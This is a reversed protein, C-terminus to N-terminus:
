RSAMAPAFSNSALSMALTISRRGHGEYSSRIVTNEGVPLQLVRLKESVNPHVHIMFPSLPHDRRLGMVHFAVQYAAEWVEPTTPGGMETDGLFNVFVLWSPVGHARLFDLHAIRNAM